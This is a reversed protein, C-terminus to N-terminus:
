RCAHRISVDCFQCRFTTTSLQTMNVAGGNQAAKIVSRGNLCEHDVINLCYSCKASVTSMCQHVPRGFMSTEEGYFFNDSM